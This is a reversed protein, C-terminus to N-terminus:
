HHRRRDTWATSGFSERVIELLVILSYVLLAQLPRHIPQHCRRLRHRHCCRACQIPGHDHHRRHSPLGPCLLPLSSTRRRKPLVVLDDAAWEVEHAM